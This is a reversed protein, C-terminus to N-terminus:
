PGTKQCGRPALSRQRYQHSRCAPEGHLTKLRPWKVYGGSPENASVNRRLLNGFIVARSGAAMWIRPMLTRNRVKLKCNCKPAPPSINRFTEIKAFLLIPEFGM